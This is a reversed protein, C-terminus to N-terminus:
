TFQGAREWTPRAPPLHEVRGISPRRAAMLRGCDHRAPTILYRTSTTRGPTLTTVPVARHRLPPLPVYIDLPAKARTPRPAATATTMPILVNPGNSLCSAGVCPAFPSTAPTASTGDSLGGGCSDPRASVSATPPAKDDGTLGEAEFRVSTDAPAAGCVSGGVAPIAAGDAGTTAAVEADANGGICVMDSSPARKPSAVACGVCGVADADLRGRPASFDVAFRTASVCAVFFFRGSVGRGNPIRSNRAPRQYGERRCKCRRLM